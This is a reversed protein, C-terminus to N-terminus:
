SSIKPALLGAALEANRRAKTQLESLLGATIPRATSIAHPLKAWEAESANDIVPAGILKALATVKPDYNVAVCPVGQAAAFILAHLRMAIMLDCRGAHAMIQRPHLNATPIIEQPQAGHAEILPRDAAPQMPLFRLTAGAAQAASRIARIARATADGGTQGPWSRLAVGWTLAKGGSSGDNADLAWVPDATVEVERRVGIRRLLAKSDDDRVTVVRASQIAMRVLKRSLPKRLPGVGHAYIM